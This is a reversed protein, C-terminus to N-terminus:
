GINVTFRTTLGTGFSARVTFSGPTAPATLVTQAFGEANTTTSPSEIVVGAADTTYTVPANYVPQGSADHLRVVLPISTGGPLVTQKANYALFGTVPSTSAPGAYALKGGDFGLPATGSLQNLNLDIRNLARGQALYLYRSVTGNSLASIENSFALDNVTGQGGLTTFTSLGASVPSLTIEYITGGVPAFVRNNSAPYMRDLTVGPLFFGPLRGVGRNIPNFLAFVSGTVPTKNSVVGRGDPTFGAKGPLENLPIEGRLAAARGDIEYIRNQATVYLLDSPSVALGTATGPIPVSGAVTNTGLDIVTLRRSPISLVYARRSDQSVALDSPDQGLDQVVGTLIERDEATDFIRLSNGLILIRRGDPTIAAARAGDALDFSKIRSSFTGDVVVLAETAERGVVYYKTGAPNSFATFASPSAPFTGAPTLPDGKFVAVPQKAVGNPLVLVNRGHMMTAAFFFAATIRTTIM